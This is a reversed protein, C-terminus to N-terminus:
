SRVTQPQALERLIEERHEDLRPPHRRLIPATSPEIGGKSLWRIPNAILKLDPISPHRAPEVMGR